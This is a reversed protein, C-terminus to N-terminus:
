GNGTALTALTEELPRHPLLQRVGAALVPVADDVLSLPVSALSSSFEHTSSPAILDTSELKADTAPVFFHILHCFVEYLM